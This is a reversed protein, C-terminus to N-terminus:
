LYNDPSRWCYALIFALLLAVFYFRLLVLRLLPMFLVDLEHCTAKKLLVGLFWCVGVSAGVM